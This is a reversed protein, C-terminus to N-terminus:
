QQYLSLQQNVMIGGPSNLRGKTRESNNEKIHDVLVVAKYAIGMRHLTEVFSDFQQMIEAESNAHTKGTLVLFAKWHLKETTM